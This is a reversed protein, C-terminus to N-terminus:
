IKWTNSHIFGLGYSDLDFRHINLHHLTELHLSLYKLSSYIHCFGGCNADSCDSLCSMPTRCRNGHKPFYNMSNIKNCQPNKGSTELAFFAFCFDFLVSRQILFWRLFNFAFRFSLLTLPMECLHTLRCKNINVTTNTKCCDSNRIVKKYFVHLKNVTYVGKPFLARSFSHLM